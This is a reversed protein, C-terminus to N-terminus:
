GTPRGQPSEGGGLWVAARVLSSKELSRLRAALEDIRRRAGALEATRQDLDEELGAIRVAAQAIADAERDAEDSLERIQADRGAVAAAHADRELTVATDREARARDREDRLRAALENAADREVALSDRVRDIEIMRRHLADAQRALEDSHAEQAALAARLAEADDALREFRTRASEFRQAHHDAERRAAELEDTLRAISEREDALDFQSRTLDVRLAAEAAPASALAARAQALDARTAALDEALAALEAIRRSELAALTAQAQDVDRERAAETAALEAAHAERIRAIEGRLSDVEAALTRADRPAEALERTVRDARAAQAAATDALAQLRARDSEIEQALWPAVASSLAARAATALGDATRKLDGSVTSALRRYGADLATDLGSGLGLPPPDGTASPPLPSKAAAAAPPFRTAQAIRKMGAAPDALFADEAVVTRPLGRTAREFEITHALWLALSKEPAFQRQRALVAALSGPHTIWLLAAVPRGSKEIRERWLAAIRTAAPDAILLPGDAGARELLGDIAARAADLGPAAPLRTPVAAMSDWRMGCAALAFQSVAGPDGAPGPTRAGAGVLADALVSTGSEPLGLLLLVPPVM